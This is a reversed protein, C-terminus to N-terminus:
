CANKLDTQYLNLTINQDRNVVTLRILVLIKNAKAAAETCQRSSKGDEHIIV